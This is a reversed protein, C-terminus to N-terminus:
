TMLQLIARIVRAESEKLCFRPLFCYFKDVNYKDYIFNEEVMMTQFYIFTMAVYAHDDIKSIFEYNELSDQSLTSPKGYRPASKSLKMRFYSDLM